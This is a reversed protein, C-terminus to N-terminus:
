IGIVGTRARVVSGRVGLIVGFTTVPNRCSNSRGTAPIAEALDAEAPVWCRQPLLRKPTASSTEAPVAGSRTREAPQVDCSPIARRLIAAAGYGSSRLDQGDPQSRLIRLQAPCSESQGGSTVVRFPVDCSQQRETAAQACTRAM